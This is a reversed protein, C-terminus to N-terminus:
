KKNLETFIDYQYQKMIEMRFKDAADPSVHRLVTLIFRKGVSFGNRFGFKYTFVVLAVACLIIVAVPILMSAKM